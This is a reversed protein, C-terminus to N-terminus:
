ASFPTIFCFVAFFDFAVDLFVDFFLLLFYVSLATNALSLLKLVLAARLRTLGVRGVGLGGRDIINDALLFLRDNERVPRIHTRIYGKM